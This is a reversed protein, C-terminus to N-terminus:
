KLTFHPLTSLTTLLHLPVLHELNHLLQFFLHHVSHLMFTVLVLCQLLLEGSKEMWVM